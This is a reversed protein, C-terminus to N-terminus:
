TDSIPLHICAFGSHQKELFIAANCLIGSPGAQDSILQGALTPHFHPFNQM